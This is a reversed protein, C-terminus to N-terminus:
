IRTIVQIHASPKTAYGWWAEGKRWDSLPIEYLGEFEM